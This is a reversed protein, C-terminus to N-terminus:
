ERKIRKLLHRVKLFVEVFLISKVNMGGRCFEHYFRNSMLSEVLSALFMLVAFAIGIWLPQDKNDLFDIFLRYNIKTKIDYSHNFKVATHLTQQLQFVSHALRSHLGRSNNALHATRTALVFITTEARAEWRWWESVAIRKAQTSLRLLMAKTILHFLFLMLTSKNVSTLWKMRDFNVIEFVLTQYNGASKRFIM